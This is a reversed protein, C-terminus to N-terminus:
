SCASPGPTYSPRYSAEPKTETERPGRGRMPLAITSDDSDSGNVFVQQLGRRASGVDWRSEWPWGWKEPLHLHGNCSTQVLKLHAKLQFGESAVWANTIHM